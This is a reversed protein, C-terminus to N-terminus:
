SGILGEVISLFKDRNKEACLQSAAKHSNMKFEMIDERSLANLKEAMSEILFDNSVIGCNYQRVLRAMEPSPWIAVALRAQIFEFFKNPLSMKQNFSSPNLLYLGIDYENITKPIEPMPVTDRFSIRPNKEGLNVIKKYYRSGDNMLMFDLHFRKDLLSMLNIMEETRRSPHAVGHHIMRITNNTAPTPSLNSYFPSNNIVECHVGYNKKYENAIGQCVAITADARQMYKRCIYVWIKILFLRHFWQDEYQGPTYEHADHIVKAGMRKSLIMAAQLTFPDHAIILDYQTHNLKFIASLLVSVPEINWLLKDILGTPLFPIKINFHKKISHNPLFKFGATYINYNDKLFEIQRYIRPQNSINSFKIILINKLKKV